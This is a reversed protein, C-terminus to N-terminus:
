FFAHLFIDAIFHALAATYFSKSWYLWGFFIGPIGNLLLIRFTEFSNLTVLQSAAPLHGLGFILATAVTAMWLLTTRNKGTKSLIFYVLSLLFLRLLVEENLGGYLSALAGVWFPTAPSGSLRSEAFVIRDLVILILGVMGGFFVGPYVIASWPQTFAFPQLDTKPVIWFSFGLIVAYLLAAQVTTLLFLMGFSISAPIIGIFYLYPLLSWAGMLCGIWFLFYLTKTSEPM